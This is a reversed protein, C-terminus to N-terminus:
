IGGLEIRIVVTRKTLVPFPELAAVRWGLFTWLSSIAVGQPERLRRNRCAVWLNWCSRPCQRGLHEGSEGPLEHVVVFILNTVLRITSIYRGLISLSTRLSVLGISCFNDIQRRLSEAWPYIARRKRRLCGLRTLSWTAAAYLHCFTASSFWRLSFRSPLPKEVSQVV